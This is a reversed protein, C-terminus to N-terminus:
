LDGPVIRSPRRCDALLSSERSRLQRQHAGPERWLGPHRSNKRAGSRLSYLDLSQLRRAGSAGSGFEGPQRDVLLGGYRIRLQARQRARGGGRPRQLEAHAPLRCREQHLAPAIWDKRRAASREGAPYIWCPLSPQFGEPLPLLERYRWMNPARSAFTDRSIRPRIRITITPSKSPRSLLRRLHQPGPQGLDQRMRPLPTRLREDANCSRETVAPRAPFFYGTLV